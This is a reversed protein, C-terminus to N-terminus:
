ISSGEGALAVQRREASAFIIIQACNCMAGVSEPTTGRAKLAAIAEHMAAIVKAMDDSM